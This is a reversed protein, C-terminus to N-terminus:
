IPFILIILLIFAIIALIMSFKYAPNKARLDKMIAKREAKIEKTNGVLGNQKFAKQVKSNTSLAIFEAVLCLIAGLWMNIFLWTVIGLVIVIASIINTTAANKVCDDYSVEKNKTLEKEVACGCSPCVVAEDMIEKGCKSCFKM